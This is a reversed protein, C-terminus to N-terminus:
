GHNKGRITDYGYKAGCMGGGHKGAVGETGGHGSIWSRGTDRRCRQGNSRMAPIGNPVRLALAAATAHKLPMARVMGRGIPIIKASGAPMGASRANMPWAKM